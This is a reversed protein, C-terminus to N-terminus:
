MGVELPPTLLRDNLFIRSLNSWQRFFSCISLCFAESTSSENSSELFVRIVKSQPSMEFLSAQMRQQSRFKWLRRCSQSSARTKASRLIFTVRMVGPPAGSIGLLGTLLTLPKTLASLRLQM